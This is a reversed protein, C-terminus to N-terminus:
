RCYGPSYGASNAPQQSKIFVRIVILGRKDLSTPVQAFLGSLRSDPNDFFHINHSLIKDKNKRIDSIQQKTIGFEEAINAGKEGKDLQSIIIQKTCM